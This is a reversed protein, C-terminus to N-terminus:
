GKHLKFSNPNYSETFTIKKQSSFCKRCVMRGLSDRVLGKKEVIDSCSPCYTVCNQCKEFGTVSSKRMCNKCFLKGCDVCTRACSKCVIKTCCTCVGAFCNRCFRKGCEACLHLCSSCCIHGGRCLNIQDLSSSCSECTVNSLEDKLPNYKMELKKVFGAENLELVVNFIPYYIITTNILKNEVDLSDKKRENELVSNMEEEIKKSANELSMSAMEKLKNVKVTDRVKEAEAIRDKIRDKNLRIESILQNYHNKVREAESNIKSELVVSIEKIKESLIEKLKEKAANYDKELHESSAEKINGESLNYDNLDGKVIKGEHVFIDNLVQEVHNMNKFTTLFSFRSFYNNEHKKEVKSISCNRLHIRDQINKPFEFDIKLLTKTAKNKLYDKIKIVLGSSDTLDELNFNVDKDIRFLIQMKEPINKISLEKENLNVDCKFSKFFNEVLAINQNDM